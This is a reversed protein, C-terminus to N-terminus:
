EFETNVLSEVLATIAIIDRKSCQHLHSILYDTEVSVSSREPFFITNADIKLERIMDYLLDYSPTKGENELATIHRDGVGLKEALKEQTLKARKRAEKIIYGLNNDYERM